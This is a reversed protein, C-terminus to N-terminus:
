LLSTFFSSFDILKPSTPSLPVFLPDALFCPSLRRRRLLSLVGGLWPMRQLNVYVHLPGFSLVDQLLLAVGSPMRIRFSVDLMPINFKDLLQKFEERSLGGELEGARQFDSNAHAFIKRVQYMYVSDSSFQILPVAKPKRM